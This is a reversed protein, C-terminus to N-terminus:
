TASGVGSLSSRWAPPQWSRSTTESLVVVTEDPRVACAEFQVAYREVWRWETM